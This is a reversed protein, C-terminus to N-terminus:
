GSRSANVDIGSEVELVEAFRKFMAVVAESM